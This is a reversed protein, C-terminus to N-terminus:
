IADVPYYTIKSIKHNLHTIYKVMVAYGPYNEVAEDENSCSFLDM